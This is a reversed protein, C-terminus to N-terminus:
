GKDGRYVTGSSRRIAKIRGRYGRAADVEYREGRGAERVWFHHTGGRRKHSVVRGDYFLRERWGLRNRRVEFTHGRVEIPV